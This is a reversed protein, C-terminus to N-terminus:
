NPCVPTSVDAGREPEYIPFLVVFGQPNGSASQKRIENQPKEAHKAGRVIYPFCISILTDTPNCEETLSWAGLHFFGLCLIFKNKDRTVPQLHSSQEVLSELLGMEKNIKKERSCSAETGRTVEHDSTTAGAGARGAIWGEPFLFLHLRIPVLSCELNRRLFNGNKSRWNYAM